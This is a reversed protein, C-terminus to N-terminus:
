LKCKRFEYALTTLTPDMSLIRVGEKSVEINTDPLIDKIAEPQVLLVSQITVM